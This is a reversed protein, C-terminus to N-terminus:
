YLRYYALQPIIDPNSPSKQTVNSYCDHKTKTKKKLVFSNNDIVTNLRSEHRQSANFLSIDFCPVLIM